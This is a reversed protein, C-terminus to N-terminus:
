GHSASGHSVDPTQCIGTGFKGPLAQSFRQESPACYPQHTQATGAALAAARPLAPALLGHSSSFGHLEERCRASCAMGSQERCGFGARAGTKWSQESGAPGVLGWHQHRAGRRGPLLSLYSGRLRTDGYGEAQGAGPPTAAAPSALGEGHQLAPSPSSRPVGTARTHHRTQPSLSRGRSSRLLNETLLRTSGTDAHRLKRPTRPKVTDSCTAPTPHGQARMRGCFLITERLNPLVADCAVIAM